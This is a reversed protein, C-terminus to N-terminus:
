VILNYLCVLGYLATVPVLTSRSVLPHRKLSALSGLALGCVPGMGSRIPINRCPAGAAHGCEHALAAELNVQIM